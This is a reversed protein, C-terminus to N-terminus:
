KASSTSNEAYATVREVMQEIDGEIEATPDGVNNRTYTDPFAGTVDFRVMNKNSGSLGNSFRLVAALDPENGSSDVLNPDQPETFSNSDNSGYLDKLEEEDDMIDGYSLTPELAKASIDVGLRTGLEYVIDVNGELSLSVDQVLQRKTYNTGGITTSGGSDQVYLNAEAFHLPREDTNPQSFQSYTATADDSSPVDEELVEDAYAGSVSVNVVDEVSTDIDVSTPICGKYIRNDYTNDPMRTQQVLRMSIPVKGDYTYNYPATSGSATPSGYVSKLFWPNTLTFDVSFSGSFQQEIVHEAQRSGPKFQRVANNSGENTSMIVNSGFTKQTTDGINLTTADGSPSIAFSDNGSSDEEWYYVLTTDKGTTVGTPM